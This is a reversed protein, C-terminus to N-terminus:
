LASAEILMFKLRTIEDDIATTDVSFGTNLKKTIQNINNGIRRLEDLAERNIEPISPPIRHLSAQRMFTGLRMKRTGALKRAHELEDLSLRIEIRKTRKLKM